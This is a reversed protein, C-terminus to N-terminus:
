MSRREERASAWRNGSDTGAEYDTLAQIKLIEAAMEQIANLERRTPMERM